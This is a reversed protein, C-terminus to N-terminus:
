GPSRRDRVIGSQAATLHRPQHGPVLRVPVACRVAPRRATVRPSGSSPPVRCWPSPIGPGTSALCPRDDDDADDEGEGGAARREEQDVLGLLLGALAGELLDVDDDRGPRDRGALRDLGAVDVTRWTGSSGVFESAITKLCGSSTMPRTRATVTRWSWISVWFMSAEVAVPPWNEIRSGPSVTAGSESAHRATESVTGSSRATPPNSWGPMVTSTRVLAVTM